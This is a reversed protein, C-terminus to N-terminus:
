DDEMNGELFKKRRIINIHGKKLAFKKYEENCINKNLVLEDDKKNFSLYGFNVEDKLVLYTNKINFSNQYLKELIENKSKLPFAEEFGKILEDIQEDVTLDKIDIEKIDKIASKPCYKNIYYDIGKKPFLIYDCIINISSLLKINENNIKDKYEKVVNIIKEPKKINRLNRWYKRLTETKFIKTIPFLIEKKGIEEWFIRSSNDENIEFQSSNLCIELIILIMDSNSINLQNKSNMNSIFESINIIKDLNVNDTDTIKLKKNKNPFKNSAEHKRKNIFPLKLKRNEISYSDSNEDDNLVKLYTSKNKKSKQNTKQNNFNDPINDSRQYNNKREENKENLEIIHSNEFIKSEQQNIM